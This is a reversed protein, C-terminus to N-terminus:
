KSNKLRKKILLILEMPANMQNLLILSSQLKTKDSVNEKVYKNINEYDIDYIIKFNDILKEIDKLTYVKLDYEDILDVGYYGEVLLKYQDEISM